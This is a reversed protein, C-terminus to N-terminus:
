KTLSCFLEEYEAVYRSLSLHREAYDRAAQGMERRRQLDVCNFTCIARAIDEPSAPDFLHGSVGEQVLLPHDCVRGALVPRGCALAECVVNPLGELYSPHVLADYRALLEPIDTREGLWRWLHSLGHEELFLDTEEKPGLGKGLSSIRGVWDVTVEVGFRDRCLVLAKALNISNKNFAVSSIALLSLGNIGEDKVELPRFQELDFGNYITKLKQGMWPFEHEM